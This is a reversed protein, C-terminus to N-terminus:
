EDETAPPEDEEDTDSSSAETEIVVVSPLAPFKVKEDVSGDDMTDDDDGRERLLAELEDISKQLRSVEDHVLAATEEALARAEPDEHNRKKKLADFKASLETSMATSEHDPPYLVSQMATM